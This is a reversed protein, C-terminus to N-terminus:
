KSIKCREEAIQQAILQWSRRLSLIFCCFIVAFLFSVLPGALRWRGAARGGKGRKGSEYYSIGRNSGCGPTGNPACPAAPAHRDHTDWTLSRLPTNEHNVRAYITSIQLYQPRAMAAGNVQHRRLSSAGETGTSRGGRSRCCQSCRSRGGEFCM